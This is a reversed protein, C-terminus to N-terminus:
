TEIRARLSVSMDVLVLPPSISFEIHDDKAIQVFEVDKFEHYDLCSCDYYAEEGDEVCSHNHLTHVLHGKQKKHVWNAVLKSCTVVFEVEAILRRVDLEAIGRAKHIDTCTDWQESNDTGIQTEDAVFRTGTGVIKMRRFLKVSDISVITCLVFWTDWQESNDTGIRTEDAVFRTGTGVIKMRRFLKM